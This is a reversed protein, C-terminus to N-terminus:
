KIDDQGKQMVQSLTVMLLIESQVYQTTEWNFHLLLHLKCVINRKYLAIQTIPSKFELQISTCSYNVDLEIMREAPHLMEHM